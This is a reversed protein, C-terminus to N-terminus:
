TVSLSLLSYLSTVSFILNLSLSHHIRIQNYHNLSVELSLTAKKSSLKLSTQFGAPYRRENNFNSHKKVIVNSQIIIELGFKSSSNSVSLTNFKLIQKIIQHYIKSILM